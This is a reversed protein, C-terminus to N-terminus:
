IHILSLCAMRLKVEAKRDALRVAKRDRWERLHLDGNMSLENGSGSFRGRLELRDSTADIALGTRHDHHEASLGEFTVKRLNFDQQDGATSDTRWIVWNETGKTDFGVGLRVSEGHLESVTYDGRLLALLSFEIYLDEAYLLTDAPLSDARVEQVFVEHMRLSAQPFRNLLSFEMGNQHVPVKLHANLESVLKAQVEDQYVYASDRICM